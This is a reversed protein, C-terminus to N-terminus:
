FGEGKKLEQWEVRLTELALPALLMPLVFALVTYLRTGAMPLVLKRRQKHHTHPAENKLEAQHVAEVL